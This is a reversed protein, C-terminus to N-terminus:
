EALVVHVHAVSAFRTEDIRFRTENHLEDRHHGNFSEIFVNLTPKGPAITGSSRRRRIVGSTLCM